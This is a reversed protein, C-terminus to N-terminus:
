QLRIDGTITIVASAKDAQEKAIVVGCYELGALHRKIAGSKIGSMQSLDAYTATFTRAQADSMLRNLIYYLALLKAARDCKSRIREMSDMNVWFGPAKGYTVPKPQFLKAKM